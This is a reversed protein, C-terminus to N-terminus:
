LLDDDVLLRVTGRLGLRGAGSAGAVGSACVPHLQPVSDPRPAPVPPFDSAPHLVPVLALGPPLDLVPLLVFVPLLALSPVASRESALPRAPVPGPVPPLAFAPALALAAVPCPGVGLLM